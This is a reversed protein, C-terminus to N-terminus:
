GTMAMVEPTDVVFSVDQGRDSTNRLLVSPSEGGALYLEPMLDGDCDFAAAGGGVFHEWGGVYQHAIAPDSTVVQFAPQAIAAPSLLVAVLIGSFYKM